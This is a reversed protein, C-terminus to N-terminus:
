VETWTVSTPLEPSRSVFERVAKRAVAKSIVNSALAESHHDPEIYFTFVGKATPDGLSMFYPPNGSKAIFSLISGRRAGLVITMCDGNARTVHVAQPLTPSVEKAIADLIDDVEDVSNAKATSRWAVKAIM